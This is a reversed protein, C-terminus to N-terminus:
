ESRLSVLETENCLLDGVHGGGRQRLESADLTERSHWALLLLAGTRLRRGVDNGFCQPLWGVAFVNYGRLRWDDHKSTGLPRQVFREPHGVFCTIGPSM